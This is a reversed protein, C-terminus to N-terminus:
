NKWNSLGIIKTFRKREGGVDLIDALGRRDEKSIAGSRIGEKNWAKIHCHMMNTVRSGGMVM